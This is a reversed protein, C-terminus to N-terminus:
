RGRGEAGGGVVFRTELGRRKADVRISSVEDLTLPRDTGFALLYQNRLEIAIQRYAETVDSMSRVYFVRGGSAEAIAELDDKRFAPRQADLGALAIVYIPLGSRKATLYTRRYSHRSRFDDGDSLLVLARRGAGGDFQVIAFLIADYLATAGYAEMKGLGTLLRGLDGTIPHVLRPRDAFDVVFARDLPELADSLFRAAAIQTDVMLTDMSSSTDVVLGLTLPVEDAVLFREIPQPRGNLTVAFDTVELGEVPRSTSDTVVVYIEVLNVQVEETLQDAGRLEVAELATGDRLHAVARVFDASGPAAQSPLRARFPAETLIAQLEQNRYLELRDLSSAVSADVEAVVEVSGDPRWDVTALSVGTRREQRLTIEDEGLILGRSDLATARVTHPTKDQGLDLTAEFPPRSDTASEVGDLFFVVRAVSESTVVTRFPRPGALPGSSPPLLRIMAPRGAASGAAAQSGSTLDLGEPGTAALLPRDAVEAVATAWRGRSWDEIVVAGEDIESAELRARLRWWGDSSIANGQGTFHVFRRSGDHEELLLTVRLRDSTTPQGIAAKVELLMAAEPGLAEPLLIAEARFQGMPGDELTRRARAEAFLAPPAPSVWHRWTPPESSSSRLLLPLPEPSSAIPITLRFRHRLRELLESLDDQGAITTGGTAEVYSQVATSDQSDANTTVLPAVLWDLTSLGRALHRLSEDLAASDDRAETPLARPSTSFGDQVLFLVGGAANSPSRKRESDSLLWDILADLQWRVLEAREEAIARAAAASGRSDDLDATQELWVGADGALEEVEELAFSLDEPDHSDAVLTDVVTDAVVVSVPGLTTLAPLQQRLLRAASEVTAPRALPLDFYLVIPSGEVPELETAPHSQGALVWELPAENVPTPLELTTSVSLSTQASPSSQAATPSAPVVALLGM